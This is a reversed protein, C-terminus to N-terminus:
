CTITPSLIAERTLNSGGLFHFPLMVDFQIETINLTDVTRAIELHFWTADHLWIIRYLVNVFGKM